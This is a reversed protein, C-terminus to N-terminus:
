EARAHQLEDLEVNARERGPDAGPLWIHFYHQFAARGLASTEVSTKFHKEHVYAPGEALRMNWVDAIFKTTNRQAALCEATVMHKRMFPTLSRACPRHDEPLRELLEVQLEAAAERGLKTSDASGWPSWVKFPMLRPGVSHYEIDGLDATHGHGTIIHLGESSTTAGRVAGGDRKQVEVNQAEVTDVRDNVTDARKAVARTRVHTIRGTM